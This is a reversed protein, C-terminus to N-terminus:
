TRPYVREWSHRGVGRRVIRQHFFKHINLFLRHPFLVQTSRWSSFSLLVDKLEQPVLTFFHLDQGPSKANDLLTHQSIGMAVHLVAHVLGCLHQASHEVGM